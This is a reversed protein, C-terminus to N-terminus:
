FRLLYSVKAFFQRGTTTAPYGIRGVAPPAGPLLALNELRDTYGVYFATGPHILYTLLVDGTIRKQRDIGALAPNPLAGSDDLILRLSLARTFQYNVRSRALHDVFVTTPRSNVAFSDPRTRLTTLYYIEDLKLRAMPRITISAQAERGNGRFAALGEPASYNIRTGWSYGGDLTVRKFYESHGGFSTDTKRFNIGGFREFMEAHNGGFFTSRALEANFGPSVRWDQQVGRHDWDVNTYLNPGWSLVVKSKPHFRRWAFQEVQRINVRPVFGLDTHFGESRDTYQM